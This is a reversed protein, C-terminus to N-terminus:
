YTNSIIDTLDKKLLHTYDCDSLIIVTNNAVVSAKISVCYGNKQWIATKQSSQGLSFSYEGSNQGLLSHFHDILLYDNQCSIIISQIIGKENTGILLNKVQISNFLTIQRGSYVYDIKYINFEKDITDKYMYSGIASFSTNDFREGIRINNLNIPFKLINTTQGFGNLIFLSIILTFLVKYGTIKVKM